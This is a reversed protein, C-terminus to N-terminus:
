LALSSRVPRRRSGHRSTGRGEVPAAQEGLVWRWAPVVRILDASTDILVEEHLTVIEAQGNGIETMAEALAAVERARTAPDDLTACAQVLRGARREFLDGVVVDVERGSSTLYYAVEEQLLRGHYRRLHLYVTNELRAGRDLATVHSMAWALGPGVIYVKRPNTARVRASPSFIPATFLLHADQFHGLLAPLTDKSVRLRRSGLDRWVPPNGIV